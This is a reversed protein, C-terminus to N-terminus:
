RSPELCMCSTSIKIDADRWLRNFRQLERRADDSAHLGIYAKYLGLTAWGDNPTRRLNDQFVQKAEEFRGHMLLAAGLSHRTPMVWDPPEAYPLQDEAEVALRLETLGEDVGGPERILIEGTILHKEVNLIDRIPTVYWRQRTPLADFMELFRSRSQRAEDLRGTAALAVTRAGYRMTEAIPFKPGFSPTRLIADWKGFMQQVTLPMAINQDYDAFNTEFQERTFGEITVGELAIRSQGRMGAAFALAMNYHEVKPWARLDIGRSRAYAEEKQLADLNAKVSREWMGLRAYIHSPMHQMHAIDPLLNYLRNAASLAKQPTSSAELAHIYLHLGLPHRPDLKLVRELAAVADLTGPQPKGDKTWQNWPREDILAEAYMAGIDPDRDHALWLANMAEAYARNLPKREDPGTPDFRLAQADILQRELATCHAAHRARDLAKLAAQSSERDVDPSNIDPGYSFAVGWYAMASEPDRKLAEEFSRRASRYHYSYLYVLGQDFYRQALRDTTSIARHFGACNPLLTEPQPKQGAQLMAFLLAAFMM